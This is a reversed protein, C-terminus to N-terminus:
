KCAFFCNHQLSHQIAIGENQLYMKTSAMCYNLVLTFPEENDVVNFAKLQLM